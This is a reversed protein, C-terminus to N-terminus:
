PSAAVATPLAFPLDILADVLRRGPFDYRGAGVGRARWFVANVLAAILSAGVSLRYSAVVASRPTNWITEWSSTATKLSCRLCLAGARDFWHLISAM